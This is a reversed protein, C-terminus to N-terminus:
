GRRGSGEWCLVTFVQQRSCSISGLRSISMGFVHATAALTVVTSSPTCCPLRAAILPFYSTSAACPLRSRNLTTWTSSIGSVLLLGSLSLCLSLSLPLSDAVLSSRRYSQCYFWLRPPVGLEGALTPSTYRLYIGYAVTVHQVVCASAFIQMEYVVKSAEPTKNEERPLICSM